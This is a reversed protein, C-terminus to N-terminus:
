RYLLIMPSTTTATTPAVATSALAGYATDVYMFPDNRNLSNAFNTSLTPMGVQIVPPVHGAATLQYVEDWAYMSIATDSHFALYHWGIYSNTWSNASTRLASSGDLTVEGFDKQLTGPGGGSAESYIGVRYKEGTDGTGQNFTKAGAFAEINSLYIPTYYLRTSTTALTQGVRAVWHPGIGAGSMVKPAKAGLIPGASSIAVM